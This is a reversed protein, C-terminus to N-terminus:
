PLLDAVAIKAKPKGLPSVTEKENFVFIETYSAAVPRRYVEVCRHVLNVIWYEPIERGAYLALKKTRDYRLTSDSIEVILIADRPHAQAFDCLAGKSVAADPPTESNTGLDLPLQSDVVFGEAFVAQLAALILRVATAHAANMAAVEIIEGEILETRKNDFFSLEALRYYAAKTWKHVSPANEGAADTEIELPVPLKSTQPLEAVTQM